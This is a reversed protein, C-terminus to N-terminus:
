CRSSISFYKSSHEAIFCLFTLIHVRFNRTHHCSILYVFYRCVEPLDISRPLNVFSPENDNIDVVTIFVDALAPPHFSDTARVTIRLTSSLIM